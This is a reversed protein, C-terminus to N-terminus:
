FLSEITLDLENPPIYFRQYYVVEGTQDWATSKINLIMAGPAVGIHQAAGEPAGAFAIRHDLRTVRRDTEAQVLNKFNESHLADLPRDRFFPYRGADVYFHTVIAFEEGIMIRRDLRLVTADEGIVETWAGREAVTMRGLIKPYVPLFPGGPRSFRAHLPKRMSHELGRVVTGVGTKRLVLGAEMLARLAKQVTGLSYPSLATMEAESPLKDGEVIVGTEIARVLANQLQLYKPVTRDGDALERALYGRLVTVVQAARIPDLRELDNDRRAM